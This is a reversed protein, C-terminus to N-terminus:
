RMAGTWTVTGPEVGCTALAHVANRCCDAADYNAHYFMSQGFRQPNRFPQGKPHAPVTHVLYRSRGAADMLPCQAPQLRGTSALWELAGALVQSWNRAQYTSGDPLHVTVDPKTGKTAALVLEPLTAPKPGAATSPKVVPQQQRAPPQDPEPATSGRPHLTAFEVSPATLNEPSLSLLMQWVHVVPGASLTTELVLREHLPVGLKHADITRWKNGDTLVGYRVGSTFCYGGLQELDKLDLAADLPKAEVLAVARESGFLAYDVRISGYRYEPVVVSPDSVAWGLAQLVPDVLAYRTATENAALRDRHKAMAARLRELLAHWDVM